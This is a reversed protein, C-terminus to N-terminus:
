TASHGSRKAARKIAADMERRFQPQWKRGITKSFERAKTGPHHVVKAFAQKNGGRGATSSIVRPKTKARGGTKFALIGKRKAKILHKKTGGEVFRYVKDKTTVDVGVGSAEGGAKVEANFKVKHEWTATTKQFDKLIEKEVKAATAKIEERFISSRFPTAPKISKFVIM